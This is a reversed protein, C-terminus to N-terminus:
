LESNKNKKFKINSIWTFQFYYQHFWNKGATNWTIYLLGAELKNADNLKKGLAAYSWNEAYISNASKFTNFFAEEYVNFYLGGNKTKLPFELKFLYRLRHTYPTKGTKRDHIFRNDLRVRHKFLLSKSSHNYTAQIHARHENIYNSKVVNERQYVYSANFSLKKNKNFTLGQEAYFLLFNPDKKLAVNELNALPFAGFYYLSYDLKQNITGTHDITPFVGGVFTSQAHVELIFLFTFIFVGFGSKMKKNLIVSCLM